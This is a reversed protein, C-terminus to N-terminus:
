LIGLDPAPERTPWTIVQMEGWGAGTPEVLHFAEETKKSVTEDTTAGEPTHPFQFCGDAVVQCM